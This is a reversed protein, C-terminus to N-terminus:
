EIGDKIGSDLWKNNSMYNPVFKIKNKDHLKSAGIRAALLYDKGNQTIENLLDDQIDNLTHTCYMGKEFFPHSILTKCFPITTEIGSIHFEYLARSMRNLAMKRNDGWTILKGLLPDYYPTIKQGVRVGDDFRVGLGQPITMENIIGTSPTFDNFGNEAYIRCEISHGTLQVDKQSLTLKEGAAIRIQERVLDMGTTMETIPHEVQLRTNMELFYYNQHQDVLFEVTGAGSYQCSHAIQIAAESLKKRLKSTIFPSPTEEIIKQYRRQISCEREGLSIVNGHNDAIIQIEVHHPEELYKELYIRNDAFAKKAESKARDLANKLDIQSKIIRMGKGGGGGAAKVLIPYGIENASKRAENLNKISKMEGPVVPVGSKEALKRAQIKDGMMSIISCSPGIWMIGSKFIEEAFKANESLFGYGPHVADVSTNKMIKMIEKINLYSESAPASGVCYAEDAKLVHPSTRDPKSFIAITKIGMERCTRIIRVAIEGRNAILIKKLM